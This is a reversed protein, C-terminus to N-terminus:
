SFRLPRLPRGMALAPALSDLFTFRRHDRFVGEIRLIGDRHGLETWQQRRCFSTHGFRGRARREIFQHLLRWRCVADSVLSRFNAPDASAYAGVSGKAAAGVLFLMALAPLLVCFRVNRM